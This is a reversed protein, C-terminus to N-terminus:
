KMGQKIYEVLKGYNANAAPMLFSRAKMYKTGREILKAYLVQFSGWIGAWSFGKKKAPRLQISGELTTTRNQFSHERKADRVCGEMTKNIAWPLVQDLKKKSEEGYWKV